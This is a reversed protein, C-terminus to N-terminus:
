ATPNEKIITSLLDALKRTQELRTFRRQFNQDPILEHFRGSRYYEFLFNLHKLADSETQCLFALNYSNMMRDVIDDDTPCILIPKGLAIYEYLKSGVIGSFNKWAFHLMVHAQREIKLAEERPVRPTIQIFAELGSFISRIRADQSNFYSLGLFQLQVEDPSKDKTFQRFAHAIIEPQQGQFLTGVHNITFPKALSSSSQPPFEDEFFGNEIVRGEKLGIFKQIGSLLPNSVSTVASATRCWKKEFLSDWRSVWSSLIGKNVRNISSTTWADRYDAIWPIQFKRNLQFGLKFLIFPNGTVIMASIDQHSELYSEAFQFINRYPIFRSSLNQALIECLSFLRRIFSLRKDGFRSYIKDRTNPHYPLYYVEYEEHVEHLLEPKSAASLSQLKEIEVDWRRTIIVPFFGFQRLYRAWSYTRQAATLNCPPFFYSLILIRKM